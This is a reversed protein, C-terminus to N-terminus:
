EKSKKMLSMINKSRKGATSYKTKFFWVLFGLILVLLIWGLWSSGSSSDETDDILPGDYNGQNNWSNTDEETPIFDRYFNLILDSYEYDNDSDKLKIQGVLSKPTSDSNVFVEIRQSINSDLDEIEKKSFVLYPRLNNSSSLTLNELDKEGSNFIYLYFSNNSNTSMSLNLESPEIRFRKEKNEEQKTRNIYIYVPISYSYSESELNVERISPSDLKSIDFSLTEIEGSKLEFIREESDVIEQPSFFSSFFNETNGSDTKSLLTVEIRKDLLNQLKISFTSNTIIVGKDLSFPATEKGISFNLTIEEESIKSGSYYKSGEILLSYNGSQEPLTASIYYEENIKALTPNIPVRSYGSYFNINEELIPKVFNGSIKVLLTEGQMYDSKSDIELGSVLSFSILFIALFALERKM